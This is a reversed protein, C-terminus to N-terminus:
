KSKKEKKRVKSSGHWVMGGYGLEGFRTEGFRRYDTSQNIAASYNSSIETSQIIIKDKQLNIEEETEETMNNRKEEKINKIININFDGDNICTSINKIKEEDEDILIENEKIMIEAKGSDIKKEKLRGLRVFDKEGQFFISHIFFLFFFIFFFM